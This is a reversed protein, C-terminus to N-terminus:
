SKTCPMPYCCKLQLALSHHEEHCCINWGLVRDTLLIHTFNCDDNRLKLWRVESEYSYVSKTYWSTDLAIKDPSHLQGMQNCISNMYSSYLICWILSFIIAYFIFAKKEGLACLLNLNWSSNKFGFCENGKDTTCFWAIEWKHDRLLRWKPQFSSCRVAPGFSTNLSKYCWQHKSFGCM